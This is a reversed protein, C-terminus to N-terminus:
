IFNRLIRSKQDILEKLKPLHATILKPKVHQGGFLSNSFQLQFILRDGSQVHKGKHFGRTDEAIITGKKGIFEIFKTPDFYGKLEEDTIRAYGKNLLPKPIEGTKNTGEIFCHPGSEPTVDTLYFFFKLWKIRDMDFHFFQAADSDPEKQYATHWWMDVIDLIPTTKLYAQSLALISSDVMLAQPCPNNLLFETNIDYRVGEPQNRDYTKLINKTRINAPQQLSLQFLEECTKPDLPNEFIYYGKQDLENLIHNLRVTDLKGLVGNTDIRAPEPQVLSILKSFFDNSKGQTRCFLRIMAQYSEPSNKKVFHHSTMGYLVLFVDRLFSIVPTIRLRQLM